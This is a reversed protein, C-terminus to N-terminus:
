PNPLRAVGTASLSTIWLAGDVDRVAGTTLPYSGSPDQWTKRVDGTEDLSIVFGHSVAKPRITAPLRQVVKRLFPYGALADVAAARKSVLGMLFGGDPDRNINDPFGPLNALVVETEGADPGAIWLRHLAYKGTEIYLLWAGDPGMALGNAFSIDALRETAIGTEPDWQLFAARAGM